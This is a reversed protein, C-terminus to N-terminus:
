NNFIYRVGIQMQYVDSLTKSKIFSDSLLVTQANIIQTALRYIPEGTATRGRYNLPQSTTSVDGVGWKTNLLNSANLIDIRLRLTNAKKDKGTKVFIDQEVSFDFRTLWPAQAGNREAYQGRRKSLYPSKDIYNTYAEAQMAATFTSTGVTYDQFTLNKGVAPVYILDNTQGDGNQDNSYTYSLKYGSASIMGLSITTAGGWSKGYNLKYNIFGMFRHRLDNDSYSVDLYNMGNIAPTSANVTSAVSSLDKAKAM